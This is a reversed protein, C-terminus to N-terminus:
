EEKAKEIVKPEWYKPPGMLQGEIRSVRSELNQIDKRIDKLEEFVRDFKKDIRHYIWGMFAFTPVLITLIDQWNM